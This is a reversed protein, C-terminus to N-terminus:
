MCTSNSLLGMLMRGLEGEASAYSARSAEGDRGWKWGVVGLGGGRGTAAPKAEIVEM